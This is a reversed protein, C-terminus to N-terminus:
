LSGALRDAEAGTWDCLADVDAPTLRAEPHLWRYARLPMTGSSVLECSKDLLDAREFRHYGGWTSFNLHRRGEEVDSVVLWAAPALRAYLPWRTEHSHCDFCARSLVSRVAPPVTTQRGLTLAPDARPNTPQPGVLSLALALALMGALIVAARRM